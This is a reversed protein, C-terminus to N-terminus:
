YGISHPRQAVRVLAWRRLARFGLAQPALGLFQKLYEAHFNFKRHHEEQSGIYSEVSGVLSESVSFAGYGAQWGFRERGNSKRNLWRSSNSKITQVLKALAVGPHLRMLLHVHDPM